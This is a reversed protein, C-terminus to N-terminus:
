TGVGSLQLLESVIDPTLLKKDASNAAGVVHIAPHGTYTRPETDCASSWLSAYGSECAEVPM